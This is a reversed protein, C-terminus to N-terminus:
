PTATGEIRISELGSAQAIGLAAAVAEYRTDRDSHIELVPPPAQQAWVSLTKGLASRNVAHGDLFLEGTSLISLTATRPSPAAQGGALPLPLKKMTLPAAIMLIVVLALLVDILPTVNIEAHAHAAQFRLSSSM